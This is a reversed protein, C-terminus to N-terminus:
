PRVPVTQFGPRNPNADPQIGPRNPNGDRRPPRQQASGQGVAPSGTAAEWVRMADPITDVTIGATAILIGWASSSAQKASAMDRGSMVYVAAVLIMIAATIKGAIGVLAGM